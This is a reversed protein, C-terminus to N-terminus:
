ECGFVTLLLRDVVKALLKRVVPGAGLLLKIVEFALNALLLLGDLLERLLKLLM